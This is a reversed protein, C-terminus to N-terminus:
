SQRCFTKYECSQCFPHGSCKFDSKEIEARIRFVEDVADNLQEATRTTSLKVGEDLYWLTLKVSKPKKNLPPENMRTAALAYLSLQMNRDVEKQTPVNAGTKYDIIEIGNSTENVRDIVGGIKLPREGHKELPVVFPQELLIPTKPSLPDQYLDKLMRRANKLSEKEHSKSIYGEDIWNAILCAELLTLSSKKGSKIKEYYEKLAAHVSSGM